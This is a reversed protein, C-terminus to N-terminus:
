RIVAELVLTMIQARHILGIKLNLLLYRLFEGSKLSDILLLHLLRLRRVQAPLSNYVFPNIPSPSHHLVCLSLQLLEYFCVFEEVSQCRGRRVHDSLLLIELAQELFSSYVRGVHNLYSLCQHLHTLIRVQVHDSLDTSM